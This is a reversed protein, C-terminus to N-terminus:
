LKIKSMNYIKGFPPFAGEELDIKYDYSHHPPLEKASGEFFIDAFEHYELLVVEYLIQEKTTCELPITETCLYEELLTPMIQLQFTPTGDQLICTFPVAGGIVKIDLDRQM